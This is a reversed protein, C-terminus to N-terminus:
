VVAVLVVLLVVAAPDHKSFLNSQRYIHARVHSQLFLSARTHRLFGDGFNFRGDISGAGRLRARTPRFYNQAAGDVAGVLSFVVSGFARSNHLSTM